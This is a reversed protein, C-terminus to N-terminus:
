QNMQSAMIIICIGGQGVSAAVRPRGEFSFNSFSGKFWGKEEMGVSGPRVSGEKVWWGM